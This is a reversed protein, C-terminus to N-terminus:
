GSIRTGRIKLTGTNPSIIPTLKYVTPDNADTIKLTVRIDTTIFDPVSWNYYGDNAMTDNTDANTLINRVSGWNDRTYQLKVNNIPGTTTWSITRPDGVAWIENGVPNLWAFDGRLKFGNNSDDYVAPYPYRIDSIRVKWNSHPRLMAMPITWDYEYVGAPSPGTM